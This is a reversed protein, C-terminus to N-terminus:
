ALKDKLAEIGVDIIMEVDELPSPCDATVPGKSGTLVADGSIYDGGGLTAFVTARLNPQRQKFKADEGVWMLLGSHHFARLPVLEFYGGVTENLWQGFGNEDTPADVARVPSNPDAPIVIVQM